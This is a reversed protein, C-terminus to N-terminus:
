RVPEEWIARVKDSLGMADFPKAVVGIAGLEKYRMVERAQVRATVFIVPIEASKERARLAALTAEGDLGPMMVDLLILDPAFSDVRQLAETGSSCIEVVFGGVQELALRAVVQIDREDEVYMIRKLEPSM